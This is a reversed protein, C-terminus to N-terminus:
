ILRAVAGELLKQYGGQLMWIRLNLRFCFRGLLIKSLGPMLKLHYLAPVATVDDYGSAYLTAEFPALIAAFGHKNALEAMTLSTVEPHLDYFGPRFVGRFAPRRILSGFALLGCVVEFVSRGGLYKEVPIPTRPGDAKALVGIRYQFPKLALVGLERAMR